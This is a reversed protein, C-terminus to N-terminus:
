AKSPVCGREVGMGCEVPDFTIQLEEKSFKQISDIFTKPLKEAEVCVDKGAGETGGGGM